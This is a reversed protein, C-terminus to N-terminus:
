ASVMDTAIDGILGFAELKICTSGHDVHHISNIGFSDAIDVYMATNELYVIQEAPVQAIDLALRFIEADPKRMGVFCSSVFADIFEALRFKHIRFANLERAENSVVIAKLHYQAKLMRVLEIMEADAKSCAFMFEKFQGHTFQRQEYFVTRDLYEDLSLKGEEYVGFVLRHRDEMEAFDLGFKAAAQERFETNWGDTLLVGGIDLFLCTIKSSRKKKM